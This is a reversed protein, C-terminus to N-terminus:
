LLQLTLKTGTIVILLDSYISIHCITNNAKPFPTNAILEIVNATKYDNRIGVYIIFMAFIYPSENQLLQVNGVRMIFRSFVDHIIKM